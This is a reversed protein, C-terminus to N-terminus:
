PVARKQHWEALKIDGKKRYYDALTQQVKWLRPNIQVSTTLAEIKATSNGLAEQCRAIQLWDGALRRLRTLEKLDNLAGAYNDQQGEQIARVTLANCRSQGAIEPHELASNAMQLPDRMKSDNFLQTLSGELDPDRVGADYVSSLLELAQRRFPITRQAANRPNAPFLMAQRYAEGLSLKRDLDSMQQPPDLFPKLRTSTKMPHDDQDPTKRHIGVRHHTFAVHPIDTKSSPMHCHVCDNDPSEKMRLLPEVRCTEPKHCGQCISKFYSTRKEPSPDNHPNHCTLCTFTESGKYCRSLHMQQVHGVVTMSTEEEDAMYVQFFDQLPLGPRFDSLKRGRNAVTAEGSLHCQQCIAESLNRSLHIPNVITTDFDGTSKKIQSKIENQKEVHLSGPGHCRECGIAVESFHIRHVSSDIAEVRGAHCFLCNEGVARAFGEHKSGEFGPSMEWGKEPGFWSVPSETLFGDVEVLYSRAHDGSGVVYKIPYESLVVEEQGDTQLLERHWVQGNKRIMQYRTKSLPHDFSRDFSEMLPESVLTMSRGMGTQRFSQHEKEHCSICSTSGVYQAGSKTNLFPSDSIPSLPFTEKKPQSDIPTLLYWKIILGLMVLAALGLIM